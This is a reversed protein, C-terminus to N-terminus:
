QCPTQYKAIQSQITTPLLSFYSPLSHTSASAWVLTQPSCRPYWRDSIAPHIHSSICNTRTSTIKREHKSQKDTLQVSKREHAKDISVGLFVLTDNRKMQQATDRTEQNTPLDGTNHMVKGRLFHAIAGERSVASSQSVNRCKLLV